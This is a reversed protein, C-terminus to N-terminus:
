KDGLATATEANCLGVFCSVGYLYPVVEDCRSFGFEIDLTVPNILVVEHEPHALLLKALDKAKM